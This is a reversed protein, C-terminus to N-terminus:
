RQQLVWRHWAQTLQEPTYSMSKLAESTTPPRGDESPKFQDVFQPFKAAPPGFALFEALSARLVAAEDATLRGDWVDAASKGLIVKRAQHRPHSPSPAMARWATARAFGAVLWEPVADGGRKMLVAAAIQEGAQAELSPDHKVQPPGAAVYPFDGTASIVSVEDASSRKKAITRMFRNFHPRTPILYVTLKGPWLEVDPELKLAKRATQYRTEFGASLERLKATSVTSAAVVIFHKSEEVAPADDAFLQKWNAEATAKQRAEIDSGPLVPTVTLLSLFLVCPPAANM